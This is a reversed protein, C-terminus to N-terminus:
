NLKTEPVTSSGASLNTESSSFTLTNVLLFIIKFEFSSINASVLYAIKFTSMTEYVM